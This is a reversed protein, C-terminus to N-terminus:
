YRTILTKSPSRFPEHRKDDNRNSVTGKVRTGAVKFFAPKNLSIPLPFRRTLVKLLPLTSLEYFFEIKVFTLHIGDLIIPRKFSQVQWV